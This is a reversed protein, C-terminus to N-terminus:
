LTTQRSARWARRLRIGGRILTMGGCIGAGLVAFGVAILPVGMACAGEDGGSTCDPNVMVNLIGVGIGVVAGGFAGAIAFLVIRLLLLMMDGVSWRGPTSELPVAILGADQIAACLETIPMTSTVDILGQRRDMRIAAAADRTRLAAEAAAAGAEGEIGVVRILAM